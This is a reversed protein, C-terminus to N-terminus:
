WILFRKILPSTLRRGSRLASLQRELGACSPLWNDSIVFFRKSAEFDALALSDDLYCNCDQVAQESGTDNETVSSELWHEDLLTDVFVFAGL